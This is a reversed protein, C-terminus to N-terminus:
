CCVEFGNITRYHPDLLIMTISTLQATRDWGDSCHVLVNKELLLTEVIQQAGRITRYIHSLWDVFLFLVFASLFPILDFSVQKELKQTGYFNM